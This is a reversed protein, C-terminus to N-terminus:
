LFGDAPTPTSRTWSICCHAHSMCHNRDRPCWTAYTTRTKLAEDAVDVVEQRSGRSLEELALECAFNVPSFKSIWRSCEKITPLLFLSYIKAAATLACIRRTVLVFLAWHAARLAVADRMDDTSRASCRSSSSPSSPSVAPRTSTRPTCWLSCFIHHHDILLPAASILLPQNHAPSPARHASVGDDKGYQHLLAARRATGSLEGGNGLQECTHRPSTQLITMPIEQANVYM